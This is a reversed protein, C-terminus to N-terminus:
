EREYRYEASYSSGNCLSKRYDTAHYAQGHNTPSREAKRRSASQLKVTILRCSAKKNIIFEETIELDLTSSRHPPLVNNVARDHNLMEVARQQERLKGNM